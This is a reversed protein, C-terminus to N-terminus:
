QVHWTVLCVVPGLQLLCITVSLLSQSFPSNTSTKNCSEATPVALCRSNTNSSSISRDTIGYEEDGQGGDADDLILSGTPRVCFAWLLHWSSAEMTRERGVTHVVASNSHVRRSLELSM